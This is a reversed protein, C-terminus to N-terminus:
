LTQSFTTRLHRHSPELYDHKNQDCYGVLFTRWSNYGGLASYAAALTTTSYAIPTFINPYTQHSLGGRPMDDFQDGTRSGHTHPNLVGNDPNDNDQIDNDDAVNTGTQTIRWANWGTWWRFRDLPLRGVQLKATARRGRIYSYCFFNVKYNIDAYIFM